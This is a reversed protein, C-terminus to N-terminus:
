AVVLRVDGPIRVQGDEVTEPIGELLRGTVAFFGRDYVEVKGIGLPGFGDKRSGAAEPKTGQFFLKVGCGSPSIETYTNLGSVIDRGWIFEGRKDLCDDLDVGAFDDSATFVFGIGSLRNSSQYQELATEFDSWTSPDNSKAWEGTNPNVPAKTERGDSLM